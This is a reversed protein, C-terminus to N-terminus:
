RVEEEIDEIEKHIFKEADDLDRQLQKVIKEEKETLQRKTSTKELMKIQERIDEKLLDFSKHLAVEVERVEKKLRKRMRSFKHWSYWLMLILFIILGLIPILVSLFKIAFTGVTLFTSQKVVFTVKESPNSSAGRRDTAKAWLKYVGTELGKNSIFMFNGASDSRATFTDPAKDDRQLWLTIEADPYTTGRVILTEGQALERPYDIIVPAKLPEVVFEISNTLSNGAKDVAKAMLTHSGPGLVPTEFIRSGDDRWTVTDKGDIQIEYHDIGSTEDHTDFILKVRPDAPDERPVLEINFRDPNKTDIQFRFHTVGGWGSDNKLQAHFYWIGDGLNEITKQNIPPTYLVVPEATSVKGILVKTATVDDGVPWTLTASSKAYWKKPDPHTESSIRPAQPTGLAVPLAVPREESILSFQAQARTQLIDTGRGDNARVAASSFVLSATGASRVRFVISVITGATGSFGPTPLGGNFSITGASSSFAPGEVWLSFISGSKNVSVVELLASPFNIIADVNNIAKDQTNVLVSTTLINGVTFNGSSPSFYLTAANVTRASFILFTFFGLFLTFKLFQLRKDKM